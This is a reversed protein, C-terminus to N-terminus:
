FGVQMKSDGRALLGLNCSHVTGGGEGRLGGVALRACYWPGPGQPGDWCGLQSPSPSLNRDLSRRGGAKGGSQGAGRVSHERTKRPVGGLDAPTLLGLFCSEFPLKSRSGGGAPTVRARGPPAHVGSIGGPTLGSHSVLPLFHAKPAM